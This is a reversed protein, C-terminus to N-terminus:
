SSFILKKTLVAWLMRVGKLRTNAGRTSRDLSEWKLSFLRAKKSIACRLPLLSNFITVSNSSKWFTSCDASCTRSCSISNGISKRKCNSLNANAAWSFCIWSHRSVHGCCCIWESTLIISRINSFRREFAILYVGWPPFTVNDAEVSPLIASIWTHSVPIPIGLASILLIKLLKKLAELATFEWSIPLPNPSISVCFSTSFNSPFSLKTLSSPFPVVKQTFNGNPLTVSEETRSTSSFFFTASSDEKASSLCSSVQWVTGEATRCSAPTEFSVSRKTSSLSSRQM